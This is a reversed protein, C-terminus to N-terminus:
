LRQPWKTGKRTTQKRLAWWLRHFRSDIHARLWIIREDGHPAIAGCHPCVQNVPAAQLAWQGVILAVEREDDTLYGPMNEAAFTVLSNLVGIQKQNM